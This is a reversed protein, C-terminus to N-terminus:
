MCVSCERDQVFVSLVRSKAPASFSDSAGTAADQANRRLDKRRVLSLCSGGLRLRCLITHLIYSDGAVTIHVWMDVHLVGAGRTGCTCAGCAARALGACRVPLGRVAGSPCTKCWELCTSVCLHMLGFSKALSCCPLFIDAITRNPFVDYIRLGYGM